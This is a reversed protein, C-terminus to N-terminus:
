ITVKMSELIYIARSDNDQLAKILMARGVLAYFDASSYNTQISGDSNFDSPIDLGTKLRFYLFTTWKNLIQSCYGIQSATLNNKQLYADAVNALTRYQFGAWNTNPDPGSWTWEAINGYVSNEGLNRLYVPIFPGKKGFRKEYEIQADYLFKLSVDINNNSDLWTYPNTYGTYSRARWGMLGLESYELTFLPVGAYAYVDDNGDQIRAYTIDFYGSTTQRTEFKLTEVNTDNFVDHNNIIVSAIHISGSDNNDQMWIEFNQVPHAPTLAFNNDM